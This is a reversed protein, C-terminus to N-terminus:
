DPTPPYNAQKLLRALHVANTAVLATAHATQEPTESLDQYDVTHMAEGNWYTVAQAPISFGVDNLAQYLSASIAHAGDENGVVSAVAVRPYVQPRGQDDTASLEADLRELVRMCVSSHQGMWTPTAVVLIDADIIKARIEPWADGEGMDAEVGPKVDHDVVRIVSGVVGSQALQDLLQRALLEASSRAPSLKLTCVLALARLSSEITTTM